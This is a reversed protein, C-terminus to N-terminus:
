LARGLSRLSSRTGDRAHPRSAQPLTAYLCEAPRPEAARPPRRGERGHGSGSRGIRRRATGLFIHKYRALDLKDLQVTVWALQLTDSAIQSDLAIVFTNGFGFAYTPYGGLRRASGEPPILKAIATLTNHLGISRQPDGAPATTVDHNGATFFYPVNAGRTLREIIPTFGVNWRVGEQGRLVADGSQLVFRVPYPTSSLERVKALMGDMVKSHEPNPAEGDHPSASGTRTDGYALFSFKTIQASASEAPLPTAPPDIPKVAVLQPQPVAQHAAALTGAMTVLVARTM